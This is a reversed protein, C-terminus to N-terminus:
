IYNIWDRILWSHTMISERKIGRCSHCPIAEEQAEEFDAYQMQSSFNKAEIRDLGGGNEVFEDGVRESGTSTTDELSPSEGQGVDLLSQTPFGVSPLIVSTIKNNHGVAVGLSENIGGDHRYILHQQNNNYNEEEGASRNSFEFTWTINKEERKGKKRKRKKKPNKLDLEKAVIEIHGVPGEDTRGYRRRANDSQTPPKAWALKAGAIEDGRENQTLNVSGFSEKSPQWTAGACV